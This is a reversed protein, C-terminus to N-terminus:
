SLNSPCDANECFVFPCYYKCKGYVNSFVTVLFQINIDCYVIFIVLRHFQSLNIKASIVMGVQQVLHYWQIGLYDEKFIDSLDTNLKVWNKCCFCRQCIKNKRRKGIDQIIKRTLDMQLIIMFDELTAM